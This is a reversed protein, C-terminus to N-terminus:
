AKMRRSDVRAILQEFIAGFLEFNKEEIRFMNLEARQLVSRFIKLM